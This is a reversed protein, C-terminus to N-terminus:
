KVDLFVYFYLVLWGFLGHITWFTDRIELIEIGLKPVSWVDM